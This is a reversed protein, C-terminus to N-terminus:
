SLFWGPAAWYPAYINWSTIPGDPYSEFNDEVSPRPKILFWGPAAWGFGLTARSITGDPYASFSDYVTTRSRGNFFWESAWGYGTFLTTIYESAATDAGGYDQFSDYANGNRPPMGYVVLEPWTSSAPLTTYESENSVNSYGLFYAPVFSFEGSVYCTVAGAIWPFWTVANYTTGGTVDYEQADYYYYPTSGDDPTVLYVFDGYMKTKGFPIAVDQRVRSKTGTYTFTVPDYTDVHQCEATVGTRAIPIGLDSVTVLNSLTITLTFGDAWIAGM